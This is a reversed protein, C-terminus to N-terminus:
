AKFCWKPHAYSSNPQGLGIYEVGNITFINTNAKIDDPFTLALYINNAICDTNAHVFNGLSVVNYTTSPSFNLNMLKGDCLITDNSYNSVNLFYMIKENNEFDRGIGIMFTLKCNDSRGFGFAIVNDNVYYYFYNTYLDGSAMQSNSATANSYMVGDVYYWMQSSGEKILFGNNFDEGKHIVLYNVDSITVSTANLGVLSWWNWSTLDNFAGMWLKRSIKSM